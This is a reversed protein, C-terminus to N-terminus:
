YTLETGTGISPLTGAKGVASADLGIAKLLGTRMDTSGLKNRDWYEGNVTITPTSMQGKLQGSRNWLESRLPTFTSMASLWSKYQYDEDTARAAVSESVGAAVAQQKIDANSVPQYDSENPQFDEAYMLEIFKLLHQPEAEAIEIAANGARTSYEDTSYRDMFAMPHIELNIQGADVMQQYTTGLQREMAGCGPCMFDMYVAVTPVDKVPKDLGNKSIVFGGKETSHAPKPEAKQVASWASNYEGADQTPHNSRWIGFGIAGLVIAVVVVVAIGIITQVRRDKAAQEARAKAAAEAAAQRAKRTAPKRQSNKGQATNKSNNTNGTNGAM